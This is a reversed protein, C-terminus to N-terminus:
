VNELVEEILNNNRFSRMKESQIINYIREVCSGVSDNVVIYDYDFASRVEREAAGMRKEIIEMPDTARSILRRRLEDISPPLIFISVADPCKKKIQSGGQVEIELLVDSGKQLWDEVQYQPTGYYNDCYEAHELMQNKSLLQIFETKSIFYYDKGNVENKRPPRTTASISIKMNPYRKILEKLITDKGSGSPGSLIILLGKNPM